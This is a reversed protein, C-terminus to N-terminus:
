PHAPSPPLSDRWRPLAEDRARLIADAKAEHLADLFRGHLLGADQPVQVIDQGWSENAELVVPGDRGLAIDWGLARLPALAEAGRIAIERVTDWHPVALGRIAVGSDPHVDTAVTNEFDVARGAIGTALDIPAAVNGHNAFNDVGSTGRPVKLTAAHLTVEDGVLLTLVRVTPTAGPAFGAVAPHPAIRREMRWGATRHTEEIERWVAEAPHLAGDITVVGAASASPAVIVQKGCMGDDPKLVIGEDPAAALLVRFLALSSMRPLDFAASSPGAVALPEPVAIGAARLRETGRTKSELVTRHPAPNLLMETAVRERYGHFRLRLALPLEQRWLRYRFFEARSIRGLARFRRMEAVQRAVGVGGARRVTALQRATDRLMRWPDYM